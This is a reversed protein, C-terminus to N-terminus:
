KGPEPIKSPYPDTNRTPLSIKNFVSLTELVCVNELNKDIEEAESVEEERPENM